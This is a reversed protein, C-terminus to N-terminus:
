AITNPFLFRCASLHNYFSPPHIANAVAFLDSHLVLSVSFFSRGLGSQPIHFNTLSFSSVPLFHTALLIVTM